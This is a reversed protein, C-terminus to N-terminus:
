TIATAQSWVAQWVGARKEYADTHWYRARPIRRGRDELELVAQYRIMAAEGVVRVKIPAEIDWVLYRLEGNAIAGLYQEKCLAKGLPTVLEYEEAHLRGATVLDRNVLSRTREREIMEIAVGVPESVSDSKM